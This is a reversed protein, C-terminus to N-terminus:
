LDALPEFVRGANEEHDEPREERENRGVGDAVDGTRHSHVKGFEDGGNEGAFEDETRDVDKAARM